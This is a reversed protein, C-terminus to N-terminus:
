GIRRYGRRRFLMRAGIGRRRYGRWGNRRMRRRKWRIQQRRGGFKSGALVVARVKVAIEGGRGAIESSQLVSVSDLGFNLKCFLRM